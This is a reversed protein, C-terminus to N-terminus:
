HYGYKAYEGENMVGFKDGSLAYGLALSVSTTRCNRCRASDLPIRKEREGIVDWTVLAKRSAETVNRFSTM